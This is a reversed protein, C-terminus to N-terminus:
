WMECQKNSTVVLQRCESPTAKQWSPQRRELCFAGRGQQVHGVIDTHRLASKADLVAAAPTWKRAKSLSAAAGRMNLDTHTM